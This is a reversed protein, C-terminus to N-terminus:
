LHQFLSLGVCYSGKPVSVMKKGRIPTLGQQLIARPVVVIDICNM